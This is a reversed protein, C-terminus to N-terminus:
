RVKLKKKDAVEPVFYGHASFWMMMGRRLIEQMTIRKDFAAQRLVEYIEKKLLFMIKHMPERDLRVMTFGIEGLAEEHAKRLEAVLARDKENAARQRARERYEESLQERYIQELRDLEKKSEALSVKNLADGRNNMLQSVTEKATDRQVYHEDGRWLMTELSGDVEPIADEFAKEKLRALKILQILKSDSLEKVTKDGNWHERIVRSRAMWTECSSFDLGDCLLEAMRRYARIKVEKFKRVSSEDKIQKLYAAMAVSKNAIEACEDLRHCRAIASRMNSYLQPYNTQHVLERSM